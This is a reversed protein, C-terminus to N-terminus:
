DAGLKKVMRGYRPQLLTWVIAEGTQAANELVYLYKDDSSLETFEGSKHPLRRNIQGTEIDFVLVENFDPAILSRLDASISSGLRSRVGRKWIQRGTEVEWLMATGNGEAIVRRGDPSFRIRWGEDGEVRRHFRYAPAPGMPTASAEFKALDITVTTM